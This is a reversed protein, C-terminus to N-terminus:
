CSWEGIQTWRVRPCHTSSPSSPRQLSAGAASILRQFTPLAQLYRPARRQGGGPPDAVM